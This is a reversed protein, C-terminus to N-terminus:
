FYQKGGAVAGPMNNKVTGCLSKDDAAIYQEALAHSPGIPGSLIEVGEAMANKGSQVHQGIFRNDVRTMPFSRGDPKFLDM